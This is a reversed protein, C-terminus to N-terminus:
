NHIGWEVKEPEIEPLIITAAKSLKSINLFNTKFKRFFGSIHVLWLAYLKFVHLSVLYTM